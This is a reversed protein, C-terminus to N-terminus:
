AEAPEAAGVAPQAGLDPPPPTGHRLKIIRFRVVGDTIKLNHDLQELLEPSGHFQILHYDAAAHKRVEYSTQRVGWDHRSVVEGLRNIADEVDALIRLRRDEESASDLLLVLDYLPPETAM